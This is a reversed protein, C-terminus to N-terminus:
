EGLEWIMSMMTSGCACNWLIAYFLPTVWSKPNTVAVPAGCCNCTKM